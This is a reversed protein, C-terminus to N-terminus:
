LTIKLYANMKFDLHFTKAKYYYCTEYHYNERKRLVTNILKIILYTYQARLIYNSSNKMINMM